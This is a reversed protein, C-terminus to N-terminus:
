LGNASLVDLVSQAARAFEPHSASYRKTAAELRERFGTNEALATHHDEHELTSRTDRQLAALEPDPAGENAKGLHNHLDELPEHYPKTM